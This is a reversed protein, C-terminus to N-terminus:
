SGFLAYERRRDIRSFLRKMEEDGKRAVVALRGQLPATEGPLSVRLLDTLGLRILAAEAVVLGDVHRDFLFALRREITGRVEVLRPTAWIRRVALDRRHSSSGIVPCPHLVREYEAFVLSDSPDQGESLAICELEERLPDPLDKAAHIAVRIEGAVQMTDIERTFFDTREMEKLSRNLARDGTTKVFVPEFRLGRPLLALVEEMQKRSLPSDRVGVTIHERM